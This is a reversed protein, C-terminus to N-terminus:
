SGAEESAALASRDVPKKRRMQQKVKKRIGALCQPCISIILEQATYHYPIWINMEESVIWDYALAKTEMGFMVADRTLIEPLPLNDPNYIYVEGPQRAYAAEDEPLNYAIHHARIWHIPTSSRCWNVVRELKDPEIKRAYDGHKDCQATEVFNGMNYSYSLRGATLPLSYYSNWDTPWVRTVRLLTLLIDFFRYLEMNQRDPQGYLKLEDIAEIHGNRASGLKNSGHLFHGRDLICVANAWEGKPHAQAFVKIEDYIESWTLDSSFAFLIGFGRQELAVGHTGQHAASPKRNLCKFSALNALGDKIEGRNLRSKVQIVGYVSEVPLVQFVSERDMLTVSDDADYLAIDIENSLHGSPSAVRVSRDSVAYRRPLFGSTTLFDRLIQERINGVDRPHKVDKSRSFDLIMRDQYYGFERELGHFERDKSRLAIAREAQERLQKRLGPEDAEFDGEKNRKAM